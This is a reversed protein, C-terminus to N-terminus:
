VVCVPQALKRALMGRVHKQIVIAAACRRQRRNKELMWMYKQDSTLVWPTFESYSRMWRAIIEIREEKPIESDPRFDLRAILGCFSSFLNLSFRFSRLETKVQRIDCEAKSRQRIYNPDLRKMEDLFHVRVCMNAHMQECLTALLDHTYPDQLLGKRKRVLAALIMETETVSVPTVPTVLSMVTVHHFVM